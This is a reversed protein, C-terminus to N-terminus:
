RNIFLHHEQAPRPLQLNGLAHATDHLGGGKNATESFAGVAMRGLSRFYAPMGHRAADFGAQKPALEM